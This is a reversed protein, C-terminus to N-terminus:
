AGARKRELARELLAIKVQDANTKVPKSQAEELQTRLTERYERENM